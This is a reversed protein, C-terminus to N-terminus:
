SKPASEHPAGPDPPASSEDAPAAAAEEHPAAGEAAPQLFDPPSGPPEQEAAGGYTRSPIERRVLLAIFFLLIFGYLGVGILAWALTDLHAWRGPTEGWLRQEALLVVTFWAGYALALALAVHVWAMHRLRVLYQPATVTM